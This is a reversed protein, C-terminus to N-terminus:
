SLSQGCLDDVTMKLKAAKVKDFFRDDSSKIKKLVSLRQSDLMYVLNYMMSLFDDRRSTVLYNFANVSAFLFSGRFKNIKDMKIHNGIEDKYPSLLGFDVLFLDNKNREIM